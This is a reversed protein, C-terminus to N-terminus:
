SSCRRSANFTKLLKRANSLDDITQWTNEHDPYAKWRVLYMTKGNKKRKALISDVEYEESGDALKIPPLPEIYRQFQDEHYPKLLSVHFADHIKRAKM